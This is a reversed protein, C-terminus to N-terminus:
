PISIMISARCDMALRTSEHTMDSAFAHWLRGAFPVKFSRTEGRRSVPSSGTM